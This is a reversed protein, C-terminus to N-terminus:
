QTKQLFGILAKNEFLHAGDVQEQDRVPLFVVLKAVTKGCQPCHYLYTGCAYVGAPIEAKKQIKVLNQVYYNPDEIDQFHGVTMSPLAYLQKGVEDMQVTCGSCWDDKLAAKLKQFIGM